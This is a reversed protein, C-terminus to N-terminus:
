TKPSILISIPQYLHVDEFGSIYTFIAVTGLLFFWLCSWSAISPCNLSFRKASIIIFLVSYLFNADNSFASLWSQSLPKAIHHSLTIPGLQICCKKQKKRMADDDVIYKSRAKLIKNSRLEQQKEKDFIRRIVRSLHIAIKCIQLEIRTNSYNRSELAGMKRTNQQRGSWSLWSSFCVICNTSQWVTM